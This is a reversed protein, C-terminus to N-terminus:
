RRRRLLALAGLGGLLAASPEPITLANLINTTSEGPTFTVLRLEDIQGNFSSGAGPNIALHGLGNGTPAGAYTAGQPVGNIYFQTIGGSRILALHAWTNATFSGVVGNTGGIFAV